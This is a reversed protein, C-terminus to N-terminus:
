AVRDHKRKSIVLAICIICIAFALQIAFSQAILRYNDSTLVSTSGMTGLMDNVQEYWYVPLFRSIATVGSGLLRQPVFVGCLFSMGLGIVNALASIAMDNKVVTSVLFAISISTAMLVATNLIFYWMFKSGYFSAGQTVLPLLLCVLWFAVFLISFALVSEVTQRMSPIPSASMRARIGRDRYAKLVGGVSYIMASMYLYPFYRLTFVYNEVEGDNIKSTNVREVEAKTKSIEIARHLAESLSYGAAEYAKITRVFTNIANNLYYGATSGPVSTSELELSESFGSPIMLVYDTDRTYLSHILEAKDGDSSIVRNGLSLYDSLARSADSNDRDVLTINLSESKFTEKTNEPVFHVILICIIVFIVTYSILMALNSKIIKLYGKFVTM